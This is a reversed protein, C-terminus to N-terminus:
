KTNPLYMKDNIANYLTTVYFDEPDISLPFTFNVDIEENIEKDTKSDRDVEQTEAPQEIM